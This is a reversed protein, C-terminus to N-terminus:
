DWRKEIGLRVTGIVLMSSVNSLMLNSGVKIKDIVESIDLKFFTLKHVIIDRCLYIVYFLSIFRGIM